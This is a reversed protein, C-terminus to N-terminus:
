ESDTAKTGEPAGAVLNVLKYDVHAGAKELAAKLTRFYAANPRAQAASALELASTSLWLISIRMESEINVNLLRDSYRYSGASFNNQLDPKRIFGLDALKDVDLYTFPLGSIYNEVALILRRGDPAIMSIGLLVELTLALHQNLNRVMRLTTRSVTGPNKVENAFIRSWLRQLEEDSCCKAQDNFEDSWDESPANPANPKDGELQLAAKQRIEILNIEERIARARKRSEAAAHLDDLQQRTIEDQLRIDSAARALKRLDTPKYLTAAGSAIKEIAMTIPASMANIAAPIDM